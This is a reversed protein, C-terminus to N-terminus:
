QIIYKIFDRKKELLRREYSYNAYFNFTLNEFMTAFDEHVNERWYDREYDFWEWSENHLDEFRQRQKDNLRKYRFAHWLEHVLTRLKSKNTAEKWYSECLWITNYELTFIKVIWDVEYKRETAWYAYQWNIETAKCYEDEIIVYNVEKSEKILTAKFVDYLSWSNVYANAEEREIYEFAWIIAIFVVLILSLWVIEKKYNM